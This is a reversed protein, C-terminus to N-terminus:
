NRYYHLNVRWARHSKPSFIDQRKLMCQNDCTLISHPKITTLIPPAVHPVHPPVVQLTYHLPTLIIIAEDGHILSTTYDCLVHTHSTMHCRPPPIYPPPDPLSTEPTIKPFTPVGIRNYTYSAVGATEKINVYIVNYPFEFRM